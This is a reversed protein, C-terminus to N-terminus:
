ADLHQPKNPMNREAKSHLPPSTRPQAVPPNTRRPVPEPRSRKPNPYKIVESSTPRQPTGHNPWRPLHPRPNNDSNTNTINSFAKATTINSTIFYTCVLAM